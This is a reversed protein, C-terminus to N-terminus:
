RPGMQPAPGRGNKRDPSTRSGADPESGAAMDHTGHCGNQRELVLLRALRTAVHKTVATGFWRPSEPETTKIGQNKIGAEELQVTSAAGPQFAPDEVSAPSLSWQASRMGRLAKIRGRAPTEGEMRRYCLRSAMEFPKLIERERFMWRPGILSWPTPGSVGLGEWEAMRAQSLGLCLRRLAPSDDTPCCLNEVNFTALLFYYSIIRSLLMQLLSIKM